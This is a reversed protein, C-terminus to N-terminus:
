NVNNLYPNSTINDNPMDSQLQDNLFKKLEEKMINSSSSEPNDTNLPLSNIDTCDSVIIENGIKIQNTDYKELFEFDQKEKPITLINTLYQLLQHVIIIFILSLIIIQIINGLM